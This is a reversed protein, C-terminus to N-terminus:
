KVAAPAELHPLDGNHVIPKEEVFTPPPENIVAWFSALGKIVKMFEFFDLPKVVYGNAGERYCEILDSEARSSSFIVVPITKLEPDARMRKLVELGSVKPLKLDLLVVAPNGAPRTEFKGRRRLYDLAQEGDPVVAVHSVSNFEILAALTLEADRADDEVLLITRPEPNM